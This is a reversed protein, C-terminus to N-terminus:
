NICPIPITYRMYIVQGDACLVQTDESCFKNVSDVVRKICGHQLRLGANSQGVTTKIKLVQLMGLVLWALSKVSVTSNLNRVTIYIPKVVIKNKIFSGDIYIVIALPVTGDGM